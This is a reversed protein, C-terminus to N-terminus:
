ALLKEILFGDISTARIGSFAVPLLFGVVIVINSFM